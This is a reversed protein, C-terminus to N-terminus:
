AALEEQLHQAVRLALAVLTLTPNAQGSTPFAASSAVYLNGVGHVACNADVVSTKPDAGMRATGVHHGGYAGFRLLDEALTAEDFEFRGTGARQLEQDIARLTREVTTIDEPSHRWDVHIRPMGLADRQEGLTVRSDARPIQEAHVELSFRNSRNNLIISPFKREALTRKRLWHSAFGIADWPNTIVNWIHKLELMLGKHNGDRLRKGYEYSIFHRALYLGSLVGNHHAPDIIKPFHLRAVMNGVQLQRQAPESLHL